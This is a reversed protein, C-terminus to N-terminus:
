RPPDRGLIEGDIIPGGGPAGPGPRMAAELGARAEQLHRGAIRASIENAVLAAITTAALILFDELGLTRALATDRFLALVGTFAVFVGLLLGLRVGFGMVLSRNPGPQMLLRRREVLSAVLMLGALGALALPSREFISLLAAGAPFAITSILRLTLATHLGPQRM